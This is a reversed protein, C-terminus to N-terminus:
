REKIYLHDNTIGMSKAAEKRSIARTFDRYGDCRACWLTNAPEMPQGWYAGGDDYGDSLLVKFLRIRNGPAGVNAEGPKGYTGRGMPAGRSGDVLDFQKGM